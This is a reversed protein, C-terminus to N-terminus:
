ESSRRHIVIDHKRKGRLIEIPINFFAGLLTRARQGHERVSPVSRADLHSRGQQIVKKIM